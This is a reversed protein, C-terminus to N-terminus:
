GIAPRVVVHIHRFLTGSVKDDFTDGMCAAQLYMRLVSKIPVVHTYQIVEKSVLTPTKQQASHPVPSPTFHHGVPLSRTQLSSSSMSRCPYGSESSVQRGLNLMSVTLVFCM